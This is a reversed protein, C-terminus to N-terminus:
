EVEVEDYSICDGWTPFEVTKNFEECYKRAQEESSFVHYEFHGWSDTIVYVKM